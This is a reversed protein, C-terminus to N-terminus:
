LKYDVGTQSRSLSQSFRLSSIFCWVKVLGSGLDWGGGSIPGQGMDWLGLNGFGREGGVWEEQGVQLPLGLVKRKWPIWKAKNLRGQNHLVFLVWVKLKHKILQLWSRNWHKLYVTFSFKLYSKLSAVLVACNQRGKAIPHGKKGSIGKKGRGPDLVPDWM